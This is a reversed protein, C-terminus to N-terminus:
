SSTPATPVSLTGSGSKTFTTPTVTHDGTLVGFLPTAVNLTAPSVDRTSDLTGQTINFTTPTFLGAGSVTLTGAALNLTSPTIDGGAGVTTAGVIAIVIDRARCRRARAGSRSRAASTSRTAPRPWSTM